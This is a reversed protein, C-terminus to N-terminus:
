GQEVDLIKIFFNKLEPYTNVPQIESYQQRISDPAKFFVKHDAAMLMPVDNYSDGVAITEFGMDKFGLVANYKGNRHRLRFDTIMGDRGIFLENCFLTPWNLKELFAPSFQIFTDSLLVTQVNKRLWSLFEVAGPYPEIKDAVTQILKLGIGAEKLVRIRMYMLENYNSVDRTTKELDKIGTEKAVAIWIEPILVGELDLCALHM